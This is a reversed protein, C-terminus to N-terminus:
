LRSALANAMGTVKRQVDAIKGNNAAIAETHAIAVSEVAHVKALVDAPTVTAEVSGARIRNTAQLWNCGIASVVRRPKVWWSGVKPQPIVADAAACVVILFSIDRGYQVPLFSLLAGVPDM